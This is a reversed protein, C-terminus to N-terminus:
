EPKALLGAPTDPAIAPPTNGAPRMGLLRAQVRREAAAENRVEQVTATTENTNRAVAVIGLFQATVACMWQDIHEGTSPHQGKVPIWWVCKHCVKRTATRFQPCNLGDLNLPRQM